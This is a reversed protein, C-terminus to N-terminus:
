RDRATSPKLKRYHLAEHDSLRRDEILRRIRRLDLDRPQGASPPGLARAGAGWGSRAVAQSLTAAAIGIGLLAVAALFVVDSRKM